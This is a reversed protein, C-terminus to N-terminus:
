DGSTGGSLNSSGVCPKSSWREEASSHLCLEFLMEFRNVLNTLMDAFRRYKCRCANLQMVPECGAVAKQIKRNLFNIKQIIGLKM